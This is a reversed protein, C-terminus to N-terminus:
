RTFTKVGAENKIYEPYEDVNRRVMMNLEATYPYMNEVKTPKMNIHDKDLFKGEKKPEIGGGLDLLANNSVEQRDHVV